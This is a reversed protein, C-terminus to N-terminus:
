LLVYEEVEDFDIEEAFINEIIKKSKKNKQRSDKRFTEQSHSTKIFQSSATQPESIKLKSSRNPSVINKYKRTNSALEGKHYKNIRQSPKNKYNDVSVKKSSHAANIKNKLITSKIAEEEKRNATSQEQKIQREIKTMVKRLNDVQSKKGKSM